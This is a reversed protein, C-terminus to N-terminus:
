KTNEPKQLLPGFAIDISKNNKEQKALLESEPVEVFNHGTGVWSCLQIGGYNLYYSDDNTNSILIRLSLAPVTGYAQPAAMNAWFGEKGTSPEEAGDWKALNYNWEAKVVVIGPYVLADVNHKTLYERMSHDKLTKRKEEIVRGTCPDFMPGLADKFQNYINQYESSPIVALGCAKLKETIGAEFEAKAKNPDGVPVQIYVPILGVTKVKSRFEEKTIKFPNYTATPTCGAFFLQSIIFSLALKKM